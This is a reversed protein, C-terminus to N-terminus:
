ILNEFRDLYNSLSDSKQIKSAYLAKTVATLKVETIKAHRNKLFTWINHPDYILTHPDSPDSLHNRAQINNNSDLHNLVFTTIIFRTKKNEQESM